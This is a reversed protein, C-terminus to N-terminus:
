NQGIGCREGLMTGDANTGSTALVASDWRNAALRFFMQTLKAFLIQRSRVGAEDDKAPGVKVMGDRPFFSWTGFGLRPQACASVSGVRNRGLHKAAAHCFSRDKTVAGVL